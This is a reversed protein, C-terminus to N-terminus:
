IKIIRKELRLRKTSKIIEIMHRKLDKFYEILIDNKFKLYVRIIEM